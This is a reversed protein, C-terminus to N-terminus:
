FSPRQRRTRYAVIGVSKGAIAALFSWLFIRLLVAKLTLTSTHWQWAYWVTALVLAVALFRAGMVCGCSDGPSRVIGAPFSSRSVRLNAKRTHGRLSQLM